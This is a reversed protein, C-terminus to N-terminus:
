SSYKWKKSKQYWQYSFVVAAAMCGMSLWRFLPIMFYETVKVETYEGIGNMAAANVMAYLNYHCAERMKTVMVPDNRYQEFNLIIPLPADFATLGALIGGSATIMDTRVNDSILWGKCGWEGRLIGTILGKNGGSWTAGWRTYAAMVGNIEAAELSPQFAKLYIERAAQENIWVGLGIRDVECDNLAFHKLLTDVGRDEVGLAENACMTGALYPDESYYEFNRGGYASRHMNVGPGYLCDLGARLCNNALVKGVEYILENNFTSAMINETPFTTSAVNEAIFATNLGSPGNEDRAYPSQVSEVGSRSHFNDSVLTVMDDYSLQDLLNQWDPDEFDKGIMDYLRLGNEAELIPMEYASTDYEASDYQQHQLDETLLETLTLKVNRTPFTNMWDSRSLWTVTENVGEYLNPDADSLQNKIRTGNLSVAYTTTDLKEEKWTFTMSGDGDETMRGDTNEVTYGKAALIQNIARHADVAVTLYYDGADLIYTGAGYTDFSAFERKDVTVNVIETEGPELVETKDYGCLVVAAKEVGHEKDYATYPSQGYVQVTEKGSVDGINKVKVSVNFCDKSEDYAVTMDSYEFETYSLGHGFPYAVVSNYDYSGANGKGLVYDEYRTEYYRYGIYIGEQYIMYSDANAPVGAEEAGEYETSTFNWMSPASYYEHCWTDALSGSPTVNGVLLDGVAGIGHGGVMGIQMCADIDYTDLFTLEIPNSSNILVVISSIIGEARMKSLNELLAHEHEGLELYNFTQHELDWEEGGARSFVVIAADGYQEVSSLVEETYVNWPAEYLASKKPFYGSEGRTYESADGTEYFDWLTENVSIGTKELAGKLTDAVSTDITGSGTGGYVLNVSSTSFCSVKSDKALPLANNKNRLLIAGESEVQQSIMKGYVLMEEDTDFDAPYYIANEDENKLTMMKGSVFVALANDAMSVLITGAAFGAALIFGVIALPKWPSLFKRKEIKHLRKLRRAEKM